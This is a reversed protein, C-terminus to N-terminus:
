AAKTVAPVAAASPAGVAAAGRLYRLKAGLRHVEITLTGAFPDFLVEPLLGMGDTWRRAGEDDHFGERLLPHLRSIELRLRQDRVIIKGVCIGLRRTDTSMLELEAPIASCSALWVERPKKDFVFTYRDNEVSSPRVIEGDAVLHLDPDDTTPYGLVEARDFLRQRIAGLVPMDHTVRPACEAFSPRDDDPYLAYFEDANHFSRRNHSEVYSEAAAGEAVIIEHGEFELHFYEVSDVAEAQTITMGNVLFRAPVLVEDLYLAHEPSVWLDRAPVGRKLAGAAIVMPLVDRRGRIFRGDYGRRGIWKIPKPRGSVTIVRDGIRLDEVPRKGRVTEILTGRCYCPTTNETIDTGGLGGFAGSNDSGLHFYEGAPIGSLNLDYTTGNETVQLQSGVLVATGHASDYAIGALDITNGPTMDITNSPMTTGDFKLTNGTGSFSIAGSGAKGGAAIELTSSDEITTGGSYQNNATLVLTGGGTVEVIGPSTGDSILGTITDTQGPGVTFAPDGSVKVSQTLTFGATFDLATGADLTLTFTGLNDAAGISLTGGEVTTGGTYTNNGGLVVTGAGAIIVSGTGTQGSPDQSGTMDAIDGSVTTTQGATQGTGFTVSQNGEIFIGAGYAQGNTAGLGKTVSGEGLTGGEVNLSAGQMVFIDGGAGLGGGGGNGGRGGGFGAQGDRSPSFASGGGGGGFGGGGGGGGFGGHNHNGGGAGGGFGGNGGTPNGTAGAGGGIGGGGGGASEGFYPASAGGGGGDSGGAGGVVGDGSNGGAGGGHAGAVIGTGGPLGNVARNTATGGSASSGIGGGGGETGDSNFSSGGGNGGLGGGGGGSGSSNGGAAGSGGTAHDGTFSVDILTANGAVANADNGGGAISNNAIFLGGGLGAGGGGGGYGGNGGVANMNALTLNEITVNGSYVFLGRHGGVGNVAGGSITAGNGNITLTEGSRLNIATPDATETENGALAILHNGSTFSDVFAIADSLDSFIETGGHGDSTIAYESGSVTFTDTTTGDSVHLTSGSLTVTNASLTTTNYALGSLDIVGGTGISGLTGSFSGAPLAAQDIQLKAAASVNYTGPAVAAASALELTGGAVTTGGSYTNSGGTPNLVLTGAGTKVLEAGAGTIPSTDTTTGSDVEITPDGVLGIAHTFTAIGTLNVTTGADLTLSGSGINSNSSIDLTGGQVTTGGTYTNAAGLVVTGSGAIKVSGAGPDNYLNGTDSGTQDTIVGNVTTTQGSTQGTGFTISQNGEIFIGTGYGQGSGAGGAGAGGTASGNALTGGSVSLVGGTEVFIDGGAGLGGGGGGGAGGAGGKGGAGGAGGTGGSNGAGGGGGSAHGVRGHFGAHGTSGASGASGTSGTQGSAGAGGGFGAAGGGGGAGGQGGGGGAGGAGAAGGAGGTAGSEGPGGGSGGGGGGAGGAGGGGGAGGAGTVGGGGSGGTGGGGGGGFAGTQGRSVGTQGDLGGGAGGQSGTGGASGAGGAGGAGGTGGVGGKTSVPGGGEQGASGASGTAGNGSVASGSTGAGGAGGTASDSSFSVNTLAVNATAGVFLGGGLGAGGGGAAGAAGVAKANEITLNEVTVTGSNVFLGQQANQGNLTAGNGVIGLTVGSHLSIATLAQTLTISANTGLVIEYSGSTKTNAQAIVNDLDAVTTITSDGDLTSSLVTAM